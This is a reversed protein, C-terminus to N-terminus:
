AEDVGQMFVWQKLDELQNIALGLNGRNFDDAVSKFKLELAVKQDFDPAFSEKPIFVRHTQNGNM